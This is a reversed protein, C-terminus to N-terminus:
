GSQKIALERYVTYLGTVVIISAGALTLGDPIEDFFVYALVIAFVLSTYRFPAVYAIEGLRMSLIVFHHAVFLCLAACALMFAHAGSVPQWPGEITMLLFGFFTTVVVTATTVLISPLSAPLRSTLLDRIAAFLVTAMVLLSTSDFGEMGPRIILLVGAFGLGIATWRRWGVTAGFFLAAGCTVALPLSQLLASINAFPLKLLALLFFATAIADAVSRIIVAPLLCERWRGFLGLRGLILMLVMCLVTGRLFIIQGFSMVDGIAKLLLDNLVFGLMSLVMFCCSRVNDSQMSM